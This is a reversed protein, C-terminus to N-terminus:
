ANRAQEDAVRRKAALAEQDLERQLAQREQEEWTRKREEEMLAEKKRRAEERRAETARAAEQEEIRAQAEMDAHALEREMAATELEDWYSQLFTPAAGGGGQEQEMWDISGESEVDSSAHREDDNQSEKASGGGQGPTSCDTEASYGSSEACYGSSEASYGSSVHENGEQWQSQSDGECYTPEPWSRRRWQKEQRTQHSSGESSRLSEGSSCSAERAGATSRNNAPQHQESCDSESDSADSTSVSRSRDSPSSSISSSSEGHSGTSGCSDARPKTSSPISSPASAAAEHETVTKERRRQEFDMLIQQVQVLLERIFSVYTPYLIHWM